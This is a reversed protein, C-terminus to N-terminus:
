PFPIVSGVQGHIHSKLPDTKKLKKCCGCTFSLPSLSHNTLGNFVPDLAHEHRFLPASEVAAGAVGDDFLAFSAALHNLAGRTLIAANIRIRRSFPTRPFARRGRMDLQLELFSCLLDIRKLCGLPCIFLLTADDREEPFSVSLRSRDFENFLGISIECKWRGRKEDISYASVSL